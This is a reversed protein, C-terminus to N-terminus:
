GRPPDPVPQGGLEHAVQYALTLGRGLAFGSNYGTGTTTLAACSGVAYLGPVAAGSDDLVHGEGDIRIGSSGIGTGMFKLRMGHFPPESIPGLVSSVPHGKDGYFRHVYDSTGRGFAPDKGEAAHTSFEAATRELQETDIGLARGLERLTGASTVLGEPYEGGPPVAGLGYERRHRDDWVLFMPVHPDAPDLARAVIDVWYSDNCFRRGSRDVIMSHPKAFEPGYGSGEGAATGWGPLMPVSTPPIRVVAGGVSRALRIGDGRLSEPAVSSFDEPGLGLLESVLEPDWDYSSTALVVPGHREVPGSPGEARAGTVRGAEDRLLETVRHSTLLEVREEQLVRALFSAVVGTGFTLRDSVAEDAVGPRGSGFANPGENGGDETAANVRRGKQAM